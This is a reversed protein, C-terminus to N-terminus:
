SNPGNFLSLLIEVLQRLLLASFQNFSEFLSEGLLVAM